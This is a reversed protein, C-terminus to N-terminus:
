STTWYGSSTGVRYVARDVVNAANGVATLGALEVVRERDVAIADDVLAVKGIGVQLVRSRPPREDGDPVIVFEGPLPALADDL